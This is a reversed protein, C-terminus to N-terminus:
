VQGAGTAPVTTTPVCTTAAAYAINGGALPTQLMALMCRKADKAEWYDTPDFNQVESAIKIPSLDPDFRTVTKIGCKGEILNDFFTDVDNGLSTFTGLGTVVVQLM